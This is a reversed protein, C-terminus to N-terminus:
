PNWWYSFKVLFINDADASILNDFDRRFSFDGPNAEDVRQQTWVLYLTSGPSYEWRLVANGRLSKFNFDPNSTTFAEAGGPGDPDIEYNSGVSAITSGNKGYENFAFSRPRAFEKLGTYKGTSLLPQIYVQLNLRPTFTWNIRTSMSFSTLDLNAFIYRAGHTSAALADDVTTVYQAPEKEKGISPGVTIRLRSNPRIALFTNAEWYSYGATSTWKGFSTETSLTKRSDSYFGFFGGGNAPNLMLPGGRTQYQNQTEPSYRFNGFIGWYNLFQANYFLFYGEAIKDGGFNYNRFTALNFNKRRFIKDPDFWRYGIVIHSNIL